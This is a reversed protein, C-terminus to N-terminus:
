KTNLASALHHAVDAARGTGESGALGGLVGGKGRTTGLKGRGGARASQAPGSHAVRESCSRAGVAQGGAVESGCSKSSSLLTCLQKFSAPEQVSDSANSSALSRASASPLTAGSGPLTSGRLSPAGGLSQDGFVFSNTITTCAARISGNRQKSRGLLSPGNSRDRRAYVRSM